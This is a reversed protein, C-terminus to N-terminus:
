RLFGQRDLYGRAAEIIPAFRDLMNEKNRMEVQDAFFRDFLTEAVRVTDDRPIAGQDEAIRRAQGLCVQYVNAYRAINLATQDDAAPVM